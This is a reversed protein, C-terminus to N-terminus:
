SPPKLNGVQRLGNYISAHRDSIFVLDSCDPVFSSLKYFFWAWADDNESNVIGFALPFIQFNADQACASVLCGGYRGKLSTGDVVIVKRMCKYGNVSAGYAVFCYKFRSGGNPDEDKEIYCHSGPNSTQLLSLYAPLM